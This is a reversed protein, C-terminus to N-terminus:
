VILVATSRSVEVLLPKACVAATLLLVLAGVVAWSARRAKSFRKLFYYTQVVTEVAEAEPLQRLNANASSENAAEFNLAHDQM